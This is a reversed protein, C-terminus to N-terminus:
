ENTIEAFTNLVTLQSPSFSNPRDSFAAMVGRVSGSDSVPVMVMSFIGVSACVEGNVREDRTVDECIQMEGSQACRGSFSGEIPSRTGVEPASSGFAACTVLERAEILAIAVGTASTRAHARSVLDSLRQLTAADLKCPNPDLEHQEM